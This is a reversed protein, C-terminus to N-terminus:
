RSRLVYFKEISGRVKRERVQVLAGAKRLKKAHYSILSLHFEATDLLKRLDSASLPQGLYAMAEIIAVRLPHILYPVLLSWDFEASKGNM